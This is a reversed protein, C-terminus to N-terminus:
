VKNCKKLQLYRYIRARWICICCARLFKLYGSDDFILTFKM